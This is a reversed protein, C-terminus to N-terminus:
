TAGLVLIDLCWTENEYLSIKSEEKIIVFKDGAEM